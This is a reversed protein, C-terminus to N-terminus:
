QIVHYHNFVNLRENISNNIREWEKWLCSESIRCNNCDPCTPIPMKLFLQASREKFDELVESVINKPFLQVLQMRIDQNEISEAKLQLFAMICRYYNLNSYDKDLLTKMYWTFYKAAIKDKCLIYGLLAIILRIDIKGFENNKKLNLNTSKYYPTKHLSFNTPNQSCYGDLEELLCKLEDNSCSQINLLHNASRNIKIRNAIKDVDNIFIESMGPIYIKYAPFNLFSLNRIFVKFNNQKLRTLLHEYSQQNNDFEKLFANKYNNNSKIRHFISAPFQGTGNKSIKTLNNKFSKDDNNFYYEVPLM